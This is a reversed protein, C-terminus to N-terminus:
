WLQSSVFTHWQQIASPDHSPKPQSLVQHHAGARLTQVLNSLPHGTVGRLAIGAIARSVTLQPARSHQSSHSPVCTQAAPIRGWPLGTGVKGRPAVRCRPARIRARRSDRYVTAQNCSRRPALVNACCWPQTSAARRQRAPLRPHPACSSPQILSHAPWCQTAFLALPHCCLPPGLRPTCPGSLLIRRSVVANGLRVDRRAEGASGGSRLGKPFADFVIAM